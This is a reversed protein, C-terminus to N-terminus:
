FLIKRIDSITILLVLGLLLALGVTHVYKEFNAHPKKRTVGEIILFFLRGGDLGPFPLINIIALNLSLVALFNLYPLVPNETEIIDKVITTIGIPGAVSESVPTIDQKQLSASILDGLIKGNYGILNISYTPASFIKQALSNYALNAVKFTGLSIGLPGQGQPPSERPTVEITRFSTEQLDTVKLSIPVGGKSRALTILDNSDEIPKGDAEIIREGPKLGAEEAPSNPSVASTVVMNTTTVDAGIFNYESILPLQVKFSQFGIVGWFVVLALILNMFVGAVVVTIRQWVPRDSFYRSKESLKDEPPAPEDEGLLRVFGGFPLWNLSYLTEGFKKGFVRPPLGFGFELVKIGFKKAMIFHGFEHILVLILLTIIFVLIFM